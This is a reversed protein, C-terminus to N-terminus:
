DNKEEQLLLIDKKHHYLWNLLQDTDFIQNGNQHIDLEFEDNAISKSLWYIKSTNGQLSFGLDDWKSNLSSQSEWEDLIKILEEKNQPQYNTELSFKIVKENIHDDKRLIKNTLSQWKSLNLFEITSIKNHQYIKRIQSHNKLLFDIKGKNRILQLQFKGILNKYLNGDEDEWGTIINEFSGDINKQSTFAVYSSLKSFFEKLYKELNLRGNQTYDFSITAVEAEQTMFYFYTPFGPIEDEAIDNFNINAEGVKSSGSISPFKNNTTASENWTVLLFDNNIKKIDYCFTKKVDKDEFPAYTCTEKLPKDDQTVWDKLDDLFTELNGFIAKNSNGREYLGSEKIKYLTIKAITSSSM